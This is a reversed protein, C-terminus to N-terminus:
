MIFTRCCPSCRRCKEADTVLEACLRLPHPAHVAVQAPSRSDHEQPVHPTQGQFVGPSLSQHTSLASLGAAPAPCQGGLSTRTQEWVLESSGTEGLVTTDQATRATLKAFQM